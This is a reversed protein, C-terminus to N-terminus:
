GILDYCLLGLCRSSSYIHKILLLFHFQPHFLTLFLIIAVKRWQIEWLVLCMNHFKCIYTYIHPYPISNFPRLELPSLLSSEHGNVSYSKTIWPWVCFACLTAVYWQPTSTSEKMRRGSVEFMLWQGDYLTTSFSFTYIVM